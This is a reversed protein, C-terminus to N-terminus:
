SEFNMFSISLKFSVFIFSKFNVEVISPSLLSTGNKPVYRSCTYLSKSESSSSSFILSFSLINLLSWEKVQFYKLSNDSPFRLLIFVSSILLNNIIDSSYKLFYEM